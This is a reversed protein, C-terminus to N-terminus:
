RSIPAPGFQAHKQEMWFQSQRVLYHIDDPDALLLKVAEECYVGNQSGKALIVTPGPAPPHTKDGHLLSRVFVAADYPSDFAQVKCGRERAAPALYVAADNGITVVWDLKSPDCYNGVDRHAQPSYEGMENMSGLIAIRQGVNLKYLTDLAAICAAPSANYTDDIISSLGVGQLLRMRGAVPKVRSLGKMLQAEDLRYEDAILAAVLLPQLLHEGVVKIPLETFTRNGLQFDAMAKGAELRYNSASYATGQGYGSAQSWIMDPVLRRDVASHNIALRRCFQALTLEETAVGDLNKFNEMHEPTIATLVGVHPQLFAFGELEGPHDTGLEVVMIEFDPALMSKFLMKVTLRIWGFTTTAYHQKFVALHVAKNTNYHVHPVHVTYKQSLVTRIASATSTKGVSGAVAIIKVEGRKLYRVTARNLLAIIFPKLSEM